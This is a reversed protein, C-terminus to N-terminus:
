QAGYTSFIKSEISEFSSVIVTRPGILFWKVNVANRSMSASESDQVRASTVEVQLPGHGAGSKPLPPFVRM